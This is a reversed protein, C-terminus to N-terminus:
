RVNKGIARLLHDEYDLLFELVHHAVADTPALPWNEELYAMLATRYITSALSLLPPADDQASLLLNVSVSDGHVFKSRARYLRLFTKQALTMHRRGRKTKVWCRKSLLRHDCFKYQGILKTCDWKRVQGKQPSALVEIATAWPVANLGNENLSSYNKFRIGLAEFAAELSRFVRASKRKDRGQRYRLQWLRGLREALSKDAHRRETLPVRLDPTLCLGDLRLGIHTLAPTWSDFQSGNLRLQAHHYDFSESWSVGAWGDGHSAARFPLISAVAIANRFSIVPEPDRNMRAYWDERVILVSPEIASGNADHFSNLFTKADESWEMIEVVRRDSAPVIAIGELGLTLRM